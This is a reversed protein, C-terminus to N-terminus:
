FTEKLIIESVFSYNKGVIDLGEPMITNPAVKWPRHSSKLSRDWKANITWEDHDGQFEIPDPIKALRETNNDTLLLPVEVTAEELGHKITVTVSAPSLGDVCYVKFSILYKHSSELGWTMVFSSSSIIKDSFSELFKTTYENIFRPSCKFKAAVTLAKKTTVYNTIDIWHDAPLLEPYDQSCKLLDEVAMIPFRIDYIMDGLIDAVTDVTTPQGTQQLRAYAWKMVGTFIDIEKCTLNDFKLARSLVLRSVGAATKDGFVTQPHKCIFEELKSRTEASFNLILALDYYECAVADTVSQELLKECIPRYETMLYKDFMHFIGAINEPSIRVDNTYFFQLFEEFVEACTDVIRVSPGEKLEGYLMSEFVPSQLMLVFRHAPIKMEQGNRNQVIFEIDSYQSSKYFRNFKTIDDM